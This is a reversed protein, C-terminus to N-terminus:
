SRTPCSPRRRPLQGGGGNPSLTGTPRNGIPRLKGLQGVIPLRSRWTYSDNQMVCYVLRMGSDPVAESEQHHFAHSRAPSIAVWPETRAAKYNLIFHKPSPIAVATAM